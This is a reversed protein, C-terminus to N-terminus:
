YGSMRGRTAKAIPTDQFVATQILIIPHGPYSFICTTRNKYPIQQQIRPRHVVAEFEELIFPSIAVEILGIRWLKVIQAPQGNPRIIASIHQNTDLVVRM